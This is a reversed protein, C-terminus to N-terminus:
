ELSSCCTRGRCPSMLENNRYLIIPQDDESRPLRQDYKCRQKREGSGTEAGQEEVSACGRGQEADHWIVMKKIKQGDERRMHQTHPQGASTSKDPCDWCLLGKPVTPTTAPSRHVSGHVLSMCVHIDVCASLTVGGGGTSPCVAAHRPQLSLSGVCRPANSPPFKLPAAPYYEANLQTFIPKHM